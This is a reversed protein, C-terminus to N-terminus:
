VIAWRNAGLARIIGSIELMTLNQNFVAASLGTAALLEAGDHVGSALFNLILQEEANAGKPQRKGERQKAEIGLTHLVDAASTVVGAGTKILNNAGVSTQSTINGPVALVEKGQELAFRATHLTGSKEAAEPILVIDSLASVIRNRAIFNLKYAVAGPPYESVLAGGTRLIQEALQRHSAPYIADLGCPLVAVCIGDAELTARHAIGDVGIALGSVITVGECALEVALKTTVEKGYSTVKRSGVIAVCPGALIKRLDGGRVFLRAPPDHMNKLCGPFNEHDQELTRMTDLM